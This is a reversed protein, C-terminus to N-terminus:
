PKTEQNPNLKYACWFGFCWWIFPHITPIFQLLDDIM